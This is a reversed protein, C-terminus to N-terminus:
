HMVTHEKQGADTVAALKSNGHELIKELEKGIKERAIIVVSTENWRYEVV